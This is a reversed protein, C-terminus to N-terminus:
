SDNAYESHVITLWSDCCMVHLVEVLVAEYPAVVVQWRSVLGANNRSLVGGGSEGLHIIVGCPDGAEPLM